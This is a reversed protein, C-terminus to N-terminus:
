ADNESVLLTDLSDIMTLGMGGQWDAGRCSLPLLNDQVASAWTNLM